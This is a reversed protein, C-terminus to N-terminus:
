GELIKKIKFIWIKRTKRNKKNEFNFKGQRAIIRTEFILNEEYKGIKRTFGFNFKGRRKIKRTELIWNEKCELKEQKM